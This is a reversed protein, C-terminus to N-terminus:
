SAQGTTGFFLLSKENTFKDVNVTQLDMKRNSLNVMMCDAFKCIIAHMIM